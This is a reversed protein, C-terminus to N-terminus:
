RAVRAPASRARVQQASSKSRGLGAARRRGQLDPDQTWKLNPEPAIAHGHAAALPVRQQGHKAQHPTTGQTDLLQDISQPPLFQRRRHEFCPNGLMAALDLGRGLDVSTHDLARVLGAEGVV